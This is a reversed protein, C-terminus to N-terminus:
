AAIDIESRASGRGAVPWLVAVPAGLPQFSHLHRERQRGLIRQVRAARWREQRKTRARLDTYNQQRVAARIAV